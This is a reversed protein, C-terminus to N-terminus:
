KMQTKLNIALFTRLIRKGEVWEGKNRQKQKREQKEEKKELYSLQITIIKFYIKYLMELFKNELSSRM